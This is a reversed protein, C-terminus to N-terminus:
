RRRVNAQVVATMERQLTLNATEDDPLAAVAARAHALAEIASDRDGTELLAQALAVLNYPSDDADHAQRAREVAAEVNGLGLEVYSLRRAADPFNPALELVQEYGQKAAVLDNTDMARTAEQFLPVAQPAIAELNYGRDAAYTAGMGVAARSLWTRVENLYEVVIRPRGGVLKVM